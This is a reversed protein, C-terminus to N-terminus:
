RERRVDAGLSALKEAFREYGRDVHFAHPEDGRIRSHCLVVADLQKETRLIQVQGRRAGSGDVWVTAMGAARGGAVDTALSDGVM